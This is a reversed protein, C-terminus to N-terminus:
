PTALVFSLRPLSDIPFLSRCLLALLHLQVIDVLVLAHFVDLAADILHYLQEGLSLPLCVAALHRQEHLREIRLDLAGLSVDVDLDEDELDDDILLGRVESIM